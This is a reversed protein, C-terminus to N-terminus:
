AKPTGRVPVASVMPYIHATNPQWAETPEAIGVTDVSQELM